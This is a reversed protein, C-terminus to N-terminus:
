LPHPEAFVSKRRGAGGAEERVCQKKRIEDLFSYNVSGRAETSGVSANMETGFTIAVLAGGTVAQGTNGTSGMKMKHKRLRVGQSRYESLEAITLITPVDQGKFSM